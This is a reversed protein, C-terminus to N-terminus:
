IVLIENIKRSWSKKTELVDAKCNSIIVKEEFIM